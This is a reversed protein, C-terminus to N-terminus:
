RMSSSMMLRESCCSNLLPRKRTIRVVVHDATLQAANWSRRVMGYAHALFPAPSLVFAATIVRPGSFDSAERRSPPLGDVNAAQRADPIQPSRYWRAFGCGDHRHRAPLPRRMSSMTASINMTASPTLLAGITISGRLM